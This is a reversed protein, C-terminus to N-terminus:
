TTSEPSSSSVDLIGLEGEAAAEQDIAALVTGLTPRGGAFPCYLERDTAGLLAAMGQQVGRLWWAPVAPNLDLLRALRFAAVANSLSAWQREPAMGVVAAAMESAKETSDTTAAAAYMRDLVADLEGVPSVLLSPQLTFSAAQGILGEFAEADHASVTYAAHRQERLAPAVRPAMTATAPDLMGDWGADEFDPDQARWLYLRAFWPNTFDLADYFWGVDMGSPEAEFARRSGPVLDDLRQLRSADPRILGRLVRDSFYRGGSGDVGGFLPGLVHDLLTPTRALPDGPLPPRFPRAFYGALVDADASRDHWGRPVPAPPSNSEPEIGGPADHGLSSRGCWELAWREVDDLSRLLFRMWALNRLRSSPENSPRGSRRENTFLPEEFGQFPM